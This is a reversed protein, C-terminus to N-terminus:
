LAELDAACVPEGTEAWRRLLEPTRPTLSILFRGSAIGDGLAAVVAEPPDADVLTWSPQSVPGDAAWLQADFPFSTATLRPALYHVAVGAADLERRLGMAVGLLAHKTAAYAVNGGRADTVLATSSGTIVLSSGGEGVLAPLMAQVTHVVGLVNVDMLRQWESPPVDQFRGAAAVGANAVVLRPSGIENAREAVRALHDPDRVDGAVAHVVVSHRGLDAAAAELAGVDRDSLVLNVGSRALAASTALGIGRAAGTVVATKGSFQSFLASIM